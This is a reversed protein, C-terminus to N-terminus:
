GGIISNTRLDLGFVSAASSYVKRVDAFPEHDKEEELTFLGVEELTSRTDRHESYYNDKTDQEPALTEKSNRKSEVWGESKKYMGAEKAGIDACAGLVTSFTFHDAKGASKILESVVFCDRGLGAKLAYVHINRSLEFAGLIAAVGAVVRLTVVDMAMGVRHMDQCLEVAEMFCNNEVFSSIMANWAVSSKVPIGNFMRFSCGVDGCKAYMDVFGVEVFRDAGLGSKVVLGHVMLGQDIVGSRACANLVSSIVFRNPKVESSLLEKFLGIAEFCHGRSAHAAIVTCWSVVDKNPMEDFLHRCAAMLGGKAYTDMLVNSVLSVSAFGRKLVHGHVAAAGAALADHACRRLLRVYLRAESSPFLLEIPGVIELVASVIGHAGGGRAGSSAAAATAAASYSLLRSPAPKSCLASHLLLPLSRSM